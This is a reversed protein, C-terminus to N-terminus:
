QGVCKIYIYLDDSYLKTACDILHMRLLVLLSILPSFTSLLVSVIGIAFNSQKQM